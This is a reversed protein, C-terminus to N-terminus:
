ARAAGRSSSGWLGCVVGCWETSTTSSASRTSEQLGPSRTAITPM